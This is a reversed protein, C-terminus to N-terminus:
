ALYKALITQYMKVLREEPNDKLFYDFGLKTNIEILWMKGTEDKIIDLGIFSAPLIKYIQDSLNKFKELTVQNTVEIAEAGSWHLPSLNGTFKADRTNKEYALVIHNQFCVVRYETKPKIYVQALAVYDYGRSKKNFIKRLAQNIHDETQCLFVNKGQHGANRKIIVPVPFNDVIDTTIDTIARFYKYANYKKNANPDFYGLTKPSFPFTQFLLSTFEKDACIKAITESNFPTQSNTFFLQGKTTSIGIFNHNKDYYHYELGLNKCAQILCTLAPYQTSKIM